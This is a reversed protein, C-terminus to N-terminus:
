LDPAVSNRKVRPTRKKYSTSGKVSHKKMYSVGGMLTHRWAKQIEESSEGFDDLTALFTDNFHDIDSKTLGLKLHREATKPCLLRSM